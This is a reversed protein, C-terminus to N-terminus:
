FLMRWAIQINPIFVNFFLYMALVIGILVLILSVTTRIVSGKKNLKNYM